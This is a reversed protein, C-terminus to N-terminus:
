RSGNLIKFIPPLFRKLFIGIGTGIAICLVCPVVFQVLCGIGHLPIIRYSIKNLCAMLFPAHIAYLFFSFGALYSAITYIKEKSVITHSLKLFFLCSLITGIGHFKIKESFAINAILVLLLLIAYEFWKIKDSIKFFSIKHEAFFWGAMYFFIAGGFGLPLGNLYCLTIGVFVLFPMKKALFNLIPSFVILVILNRVFWFQYVLPYIDGGNNKHVWFLNLWDLFDWNRVINNEDQFFQAAQPISQAIFYFLVTLITWAIYPVLLSKARKKLLVSYSDQKCFQLYGSFLFFLPVAAGGLVSTVLMKFWTIVVPEAFDLHYYNIAEDARLNNHIFVVFIILLFRLATIRKSDEETLNRM